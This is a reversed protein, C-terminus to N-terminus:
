PTGVKLAVSARRRAIELADARSRHAASEFSVAAAKEFGPMEGAADLMEPFGESM